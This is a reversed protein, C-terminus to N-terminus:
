EAKYDFRKVLAAFYAREKRQYEAFEDAPMAMIEMHVGTLKARVAPDNLAARIERDLRARIDAPVKAPATFGFWSHSVVDTGMVEKATPVDPLLPHRETQFVLLPKVKKDRIHQALPALNLATLAVHGGLLDTILQAAGKYPVHVFPAKADASFQEMAIHITGGVGTHAYSLPTKRTLALLEKANAAPVSPTAVLVVTQRIAMTLPAFDREPDYPLGKIVMPSLTVESNNGCMFTYGDPAAKAVMAAGLTGGGGGRNDVVIPQGLSTSVKELVTRCMMDLGAGAPYPVIVKIPRNPYEQASAHVTLAACCLAMAMRQLFHGM